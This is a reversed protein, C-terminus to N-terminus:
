GFCRSEGRDELKDLEILEDKREHSYGQFPFNGGKKVFHRHEPKAKFGGGNGYGEGKRNAVSPM